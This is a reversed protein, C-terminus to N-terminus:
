EGGKFTYVDEQVFVFFFNAGAQLTSFCISDHVSLERSRKEAREEIGALKKASVCLDEAIEPYHNLFGELAIANLGDLLEVVV